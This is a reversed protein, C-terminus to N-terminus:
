TVHPTTHEQAMISAFMFHVLWNVDMTCLTCGKEEEKEKNGFDINLSCLACLTNELFISKRGKEKRIGNCSNIFTAPFREYVLFM